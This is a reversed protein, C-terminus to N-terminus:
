YETTKRDILCVISADNSYCAVATNCSTMLTQETDCNRKM